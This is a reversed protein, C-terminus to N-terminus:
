AAAEPVIQQVIGVSILYLSTVVLGWHAWSQPDFNVWAAWGAFFTWALAVPLSLLRWRETRVPHIFKLPLFMAVACVLVIALIVPPPPAIAFMVIVVMNFCGPFGAFSNDKTKMGTDAFYLASAFTVVIIALWGPWGPLLGSQFLAFAPIFVYTLYDIILDLLVGDFRPANHKVDYKRALPGDVGDVAFAVVLWVFMMPWDARAAELLALMAFVAGTATLWHISLARLNTM